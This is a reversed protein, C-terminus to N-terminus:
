LRYFNKWKLYYRDIKYLIYSDRFAELYSEVTPPLVKIGNSTMTDSIKKISILNGINDAIFKIVRELRGVYRIKKNEVVDKLVITSYIGGFYDRIQRKDGKLNCHM